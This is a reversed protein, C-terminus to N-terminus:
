LRQSAFALTTQGTNLEGYGDESVFKRELDFVQEFFAMSSEVDEM